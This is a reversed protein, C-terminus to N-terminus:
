DVAYRANRIAALRDREVIGADTLWRRPAAQPEHLYGKRVLARLTAATIGDGVECYCGTYTVREVRSFELAATQTPTLTV